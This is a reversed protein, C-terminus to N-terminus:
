PSPNGSKERDLAAFALLIQCVEAPDEPHFPAIRRIKNLRYFLTTRHIFLRDSALQANFQAHYYQRMTETLESGPHSEDYELLLQLNKPCLDRATYRSLCQELTYDSVYASFDYRWLQPHSQQGLRLAFDAQDQYVGSRFFGRFTNSIGVRFLNERLFGSLTQRFDPDTERDADHLVLLNGEMHAAICAPFLQEFRNAYFLMTQESHFYGHSILKMVQFRDEPDWGFQRLLQATQEEDVSERRLLRKWNELMRDATQHRNRHLYLYQFCTEALVCLDQALSLIGAGQIRHPITLLLRGLYFTDHHINYYYFDANPTPYHPYPLLGRQQFTNDFDPNVTYLEELAHLPMQPDNEMPSFWSSTYEKRVYDRDILMWEIGTLERALDFLGQLDHEVEALVTCRAAWHHFRQVTEMIRSVTPLIQDETVTVSWGSAPLPSVTLINDAPDAVPMNSLYLTEPDTNEGTWPLIQRIPVPYHEENPSDLPISGKLLDYLITKTLEM